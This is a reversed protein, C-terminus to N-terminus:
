HNLIRYPSFFLRCDKRPQQRLRYDSKLHRNQSTDNSSPPSSSDTPHRIRTHSLNTDRTKNITNYTSTDNLPTDPNYPLTTIFPEDDSSSTDSLFSYSCINAYNIPKANDTIISDSFQKFNPLNPYLLPEKPYYTILHNGHIHFTSGNQSSLEYTVDSLRNLIKYPGNRLPKPKDSSAFM